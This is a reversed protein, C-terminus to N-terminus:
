PGVLCMYPGRTDLYLVESVTKGGIPYLRLNQVIDAIEGPDVGGGIESFRRVNRQDTDRGFFM